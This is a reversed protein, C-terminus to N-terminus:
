LRRTPHIVGATVSLLAAVSKPSSSCARSMTYKKFNPAVPAHDRYLNLPIQKGGMRYSSAAGFLTSDAAPATAAKPQPILQQRRSEGQHRHRLSPRPSYTGPPSYTGALETFLLWPTASSFRKADDGCCRFADQLSQLRLRAKGHAGQLGRM